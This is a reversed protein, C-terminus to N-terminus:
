ERRYCSSRERVSIAQLQTWLWHVAEPYQESLYGGGPGLWVDFVDVTRRWGFFNDMAKRIRIWAEARGPTWEVDNPNPRAGKPKAAWERSSAIEQELSIGWQPYGKYAKFELVTAPAIARQPHPTKIKYWGPGKQRGFLSPDAFDEAQFGRRIFHPDFLRHFRPEALMEGYTKDRDLGWVADILMRRWSHKEDLERTVRELESEAEPPDWYQETWTRYVPEMVQQLRPEGPQPEIEFALVLEEADRGTLQFM